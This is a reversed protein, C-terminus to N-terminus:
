SRWNQLFAADLTRGVWEKGLIDAKTLIVAAAFAADV